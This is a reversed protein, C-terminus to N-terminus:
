GGSKETGPALAAAADVVLASALFSQLQLDIGGHRWPTCLSLHETNKRGVSGTQACCCVSTQKGPIDRRWISICVPRGQRSCSSALHSNHVCKCKMKTSHEVDQSLSRPPPPLYWRVITTLTIKHSVSRHRRCGRQAQLATRVTGGNSALNLGALQLCGDAPNHCRAIQMFHVSTESSSATQM